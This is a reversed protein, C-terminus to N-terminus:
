SKPDPRRPGFTKKAGLFVIQKVFLVYERFDLKSSSYKRSRFVFPVESVTAYKGKALIEFLIKYGTSTLSLNELVCRKTFFYGSLPDNVRSILKALFVGAVSSLKRFFPWKGEMRSEANFRSGIVIDHTALRSLMEPLVAPDHSLDGDMVGVLGRTSLHFGEMVASGLGLKGARHIVQVPYKGTLGDAIAGTGDPSNDDVIIIEADIHPFPALVQFIEEVLIPINKSENYTPIVISM